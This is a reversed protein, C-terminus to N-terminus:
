LQLLIENLSHLWSRYCRCFILIYKCRKTIWGLTTATLANFVLILVGVLVHVSWAGLLNWRINWPLSFTSKYLRKPQSMIHDKLNWRSNSTESVVTYIIVCYLVYVCGCLNCFQQAYCNAENSTHIARYRPKGRNDGFIRYQFYTFCKWPTM